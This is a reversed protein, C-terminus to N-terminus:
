SYGRCRCAIGDTNDETDEIGKQTSKFYARGEPHYSSKVVKAAIDGNNLRGLSIRYTSFKAMISGGTSKATFSYGSNVQNTVVVAIGHKQAIALLLRICEYM